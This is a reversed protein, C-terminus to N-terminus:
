MRRRSSSHSVAGGRESVEPARMTMDNDRARMEEGSDVVAVMTRITQPGTVEVQIGRAISEARAFPLHLGDPQGHFLAPVLVLKILSALHHQDM